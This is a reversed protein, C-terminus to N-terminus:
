NDIVYLILDHMPATFQGFATATQSFKEAPLNRWLTDIEKTAEDWMRLVDNKPRPARDRSNVWEGGTLGRLMPAGMTVIELSLEGFTRMGGVSFTFLKDDPFADITRRTLRRHAQWHSLLADPTIFCASAASMPRGNDGQPTVAM